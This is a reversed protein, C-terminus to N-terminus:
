MVRGAGSSISPEPPAKIRSAAAVPYISILGVGCMFNRNRAIKIYGRDGWRSGWSNKMLWYDVDNETGYGVLLGAHNLTGNCDSNFVGSSYFMIPDGNLYTVIPGETALAVKLIEEDREVYNYSKLSASVYASDNECAGRSAEYPYSSWTQIGGNRIVYDFATESNGGACGLSFFTECDILQQVSLDVLNRNTKFNASEIAAAAAFAWCAGCRGQDKVSTVYGKTRWDVTQPVKDPSYAKVLLTEFDVEDKPREPVYKLTLVNNREEPTWDSFKNLGKRFSHRGDVEEKNHADVSRSAEAFLRLRLDNEEQTPYRKGFKRKFAEFSSIEDDGGGFKSANTVLANM